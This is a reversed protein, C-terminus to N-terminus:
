QHLSIKSRQKQNLFYGVQVLLLLGMAIIQMWVVQMLSEHFIVILAIQLLGFFGSFVIPLYKDLSLFYYAFINSIAFFSTAIAYWGLLPAMSLYDAGFLLQIALNPFLFSFVVILASFMLIYGVFRILIPETNEGNKRNTIVKPLLLMVFMWTVFYIVRGILALSAYM